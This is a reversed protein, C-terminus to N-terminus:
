TYIYLGSERNSPQFNIQQTFSYTIQEVIAKSIREGKAIFPIGPPYPIIAEAAVKGIADEWKCWKTQKMQMDAYSLALPTVQENFYLKKDEITGSDVAFKLSDKIRILKEELLSLEVTPELGFVFLIHTDTILEPYLKEKEFLQKVAKCQYGRQIRLSLKLPDANEEVIWAESEQFCARISNVYQFLRNSKEETYTALYYRALDLSAMIPYSPSSSQLMQLYNSLRQQNIRDTQIHLYAAMTLAPAMKHASQVVIDAGLQVASPIDIYPLSFHCGHAEDVLVPIDEAHASEIVEKLPYVEGFYDPYTLIVAKISQYEKIAKKVIEVSPATYRETIHNYLPPLFIPQVGALEMGHLISKHCNRQVLVKDGPNCTALIMALNGATSGNVLFYTHISGFWEAALTQAEEIVGEPAHLDDLGGLETLDMALLSQFDERAETVFVQGNKHGPVHFSNNKNNKFDKIAQYLPFQKHKNNM